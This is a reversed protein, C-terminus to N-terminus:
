SRRTSRTRPEEKPKEEIVVRSTGRKASKAPAPTSKTPAKRKKGATIIESEDELDDLEEDDEDDEDEFDEDSSEEYKKGKKPNSGPKKKGSYAM